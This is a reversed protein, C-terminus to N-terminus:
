RKLAFFGKVQRGDALQLYYWYNDSPMQLNNYTGDWGDDNGNLVKLLKGYRNYISLKAGPFFEPNLLAWRENTRDSNPTFFSQVGGVIIEKEFTTCGNDVMISYIGPTLNSFTNSEQFSSGADISFWLKDTGNSKLIDITVSNTKSFDEITIEQVLIEPSPLVKITQVYSCDGIGFVVDYIGEKDVVIQSEESDTSWLYSEYGELAEITATGNCLYAEIVNEYDPKELIILEISGIYACTTDDEVRFYLEHSGFGEFTHNQLLLPENELLAENQSLFLKIDDGFDKYLQNTVQSLNITASNETVIGDCIYLKDYLGLNSMPKVVLEIEVINYCDSDGIVRAYLIDNPTANDYSTYENIPNHGLIAHAESSHFTTHLEENDNSFISIAESLNFSTMGDDLGDVDCQVLEIQSLVNPSAFIEVQEIFRRVSANTYTVDITVTYMGAGSFMHAGVLTDATNDVGSDPDGFNWSISAITSPEEPTFTTTEGLCFHEITFITEFFSQVFPPLGFTAQRGELDIVNKAPRASVGNENPNKIVSLKTNPLTHYIRKDFGIQLAGAVFYNSDNTYNLMTIEQSFIDDQELDFQVVEIEGLRNDSDFHVGSAYLKNSDSSFELGYYVREHGLAEIANSVVGTDVDFDFVFLSSTYRPDNILYTMALKSANPAIKLSGRGNAFNTINPGIISIIPNPNVGNEDVRYAYFRNEYHTIVWYFDTAFNLGGTVKESGVPLLNTNKMVVDGNGNDLTKDVVSYNFGNFQGSDSLLADDTTFVYFIDPDQPNPVILATQSGSPSGKLDTGNPMVEHNKNWLTTGQTYFLLNGDPDSISACGEVSTLQGDLLPTPQGSIFTLGANEGFYWNSAERQSFGDFFFGFCLLLLLTRLV